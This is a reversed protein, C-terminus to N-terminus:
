HGRERFRCHHRQGSFTRLPGRNGEPDIKTQSTQGNQVEYMRDGVVITKFAGRTPGSSGCTVTTATSSPRRVRSVVWITVSSNVACHSWRVPPLRQRRSPLRRPNRKGRHWGCLGLIAAAAATLVALYRAPSRWSSAPHSDLNSPSDPEARQITDPQSMMAHEKITVYRPSEQRPAPDQRVPDLVALRQIVEDHGNM